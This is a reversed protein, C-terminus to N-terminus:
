PRMYAYCASALGGPNTVKVCVSMQSPFMEDLRHGGTAALIGKKAKFKARSIIADNVSLTSGAMFGTGGVKVYAIGNEDTVRVWNVVPAAAITFAITKSVTRGAQDRVQVDLRHSGNDLQSADFSYDFPSQTDSKKLESDLYFDASSIPDSSVEKVSYDVSGSVESGDAPGDLSAVEDFSTGNTFHAEVDLGSSVTGSSSSGSGAPMAIVVPSVSGTAGGTWFAFTYGAAPVATLTIQTGAPQCANATSLAVSGGLEPDAVVQLCNGSGDDALTGLGIGISLVATMVLLGLRGRSFRNGHITLQYKM